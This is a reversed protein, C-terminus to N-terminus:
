ENEKEEREKLFEAVEEEAERYNDATCVFEGDWFVLLHGKDNKVEM